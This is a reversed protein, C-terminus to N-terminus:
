TWDGEQDGPYLLENEKCLRKDEIATRNQVTKSCILINANFSM